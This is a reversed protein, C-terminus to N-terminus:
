KDTMGLDKMLGGFARVTELAQIMLEDHYKFDIDIKFKNGISKETISTVTLQNPEVQEKKLYFSHALVNRHDILKKIQKKSLVHGYKRKHEKYQAKKLIDCFITKKKSFTLKGNVPALFWKTFDDVLGGKKKISDKGFFHYFILMSMYHDFGSTLKVFRYASIEFQNLQKETM